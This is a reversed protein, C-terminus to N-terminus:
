NNTYEHFANSFHSQSSFVLYAAIATAPKDSNQIFRKAKEIKEKM